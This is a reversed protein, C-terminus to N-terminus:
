EGCLYLIIIDLVYELEGTRCIGESICGIDGEMGGGLECIVHFKCLLVVRFM